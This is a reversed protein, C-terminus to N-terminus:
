SNLHGDLPCILTNDRVSLDPALGGIAFAHFAQKVGVPGSGLVDIRAARWLRCGRPSRWWTGQGM